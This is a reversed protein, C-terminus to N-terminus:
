LCIEVVSANMWRTNLMEMLLWLTLTVLERMEYERASKPLEQSTTIEYRMCRRSQAMQFAGALREM